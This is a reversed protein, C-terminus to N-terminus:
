FCFVVLVLKLINLLIAFFALLVMAFVDANLSAKVWITYWVIM